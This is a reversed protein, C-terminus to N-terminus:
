TTKKAFNKSWKNPHMNGLIKILMKFTIKRQQSNKLIILIDYVVYSETLTTFVYLIPIITSVPVGMNLLFIETVAEIIVVINIYVFVLLMCFYTLSGKNAKLTQPPLPLNSDQFSSVPYINLKMLRGKIYMATYLLSPICIGVYRALWLALEVVSKGANTLEESLPSFMCGPISVAFIVANTAFFIMAIVLSIIWSSVTLAIVFKRSHRSYTLVFFIRCFRDFSIFAVTFWRAFLGCTIIFTIMKCGWYGILWARILSTFFIEGNLFVPVIINAVLFSVSLVTSNEINDRYTVMSVILLLNTPVSIVAILLAFIAQLVTTSVHVEKFLYSCNGNNMTFDCVLSINLATSNNAM